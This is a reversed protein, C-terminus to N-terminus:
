VFASMPRCAVAPLMTEIADDVEIGIYRVQELGSQSEWDM